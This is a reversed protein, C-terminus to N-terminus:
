DSLKPESAGSENLAEEAAELAKMYQSRNFVFPGFGEYSWESSRHPQEFERWTVEAESLEVRAMLPWCGVEGCSCGLLVTKDSPGCALDSGSGGLFHVSVSGGLQRPDLGLYTGAIDPHGEAEAFPLEHKAAVMALDLGDVLIRLAGSAGAEKHAAPEWIFAVDAV